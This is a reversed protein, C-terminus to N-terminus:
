AIATTMTAPAGKIDAKAASPGRGDEYSLQGPMISLAAGALSGAADGKSPGRGDESSLQRPMFPKLRASSRSRKAAGRASSSKAIAPRSSCLVNQGSGDGVTVGVGLAVGVGTGVLVGRGAVGVGDAVSLGKYPLDRM